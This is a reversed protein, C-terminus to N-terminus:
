VVATYGLHPRFRAASARHNVQRLAFDALRPLQDVVDVQAPVLVGAGACHEGPSGGGIVIVDYDTM